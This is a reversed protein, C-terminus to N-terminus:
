CTSANSSVASAKKAEMSCTFVVVVLDRRALRSAARASMKSLETLTLTVLCLFVLAVVFVRALAVLRGPRPPRRCVFHVASWLSKSPSEGKPKPSSALSAEAAAALGVVVVVVRAERTEFFAFIIRGAKSAALPTM